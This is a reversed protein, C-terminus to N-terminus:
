EGDSFPVQDDDPVAIRCEAVFSKGPVAPLGDRGDEMAPRGAQLVRANPLYGAVHDHIVGNEITMEYVVVPRGILILSPILCRDPSEIEARVADRHYDRRVAGRPGRRDRHDGAIGIHLDFVLGAPAAISFGDNVSLPVAVCENDRAGGLGLGREAVYGNSVRSEIESRHELGNQCGLLDLHM